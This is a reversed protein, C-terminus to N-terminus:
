FSCCGADSTELIQGFGALVAAVNAALVLYYLPLLRFARRIYFGGIFVRGHEDSERLLLTTILYGSVVFLDDCWHLRQPLAAAHGHSHITLVLM